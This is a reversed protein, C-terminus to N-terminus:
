GHLPCSEDENYWHICRSLNGEQHAYEPCRVKGAAWGGEREWRRQERRIANPNRRGNYLPDLHLCTGGRWALRTALHPHVAVRIALISLILDQAVQRDDRWPARGRWAALVPPPIM